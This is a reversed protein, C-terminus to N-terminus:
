NQIVMKHLIPVKTITRRWQFPSYEWHYYILQHHKKQRVINKILDVRFFIGFSKEDGLLLYYQNSKNHIAWLTTPLQVTNLVADNLDHFRVTVKKGILKKWKKPFTAAPSTM